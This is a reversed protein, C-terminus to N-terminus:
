GSFLLSTMHYIINSYKCSNAENLTFATLPPDIELVLDTAPVNEPIKQVQVSYAVSGVISSWDIDM